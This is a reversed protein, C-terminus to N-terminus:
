REGTLTHYKISFYLNCNAIPPHIELKTGSKLQNLYFLCEFALM